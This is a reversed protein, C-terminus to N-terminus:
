ITIIGLERLQKHTYKQLQKHAFPQLEKHTRYRFKFSWTLKAPKNVNAMRSFNDLNPPLGIISTFEIEFHYKDFLENVEIEGNTFIMAQEKLFEKTFFGRSNLTYVIRDIRDQLTWDYTKELELWTEWQSVEEETSQLIISTQIANVDVGATDTAKEISQLVDSMFINRAVKSIYGKLRSM